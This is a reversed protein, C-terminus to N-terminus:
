QLSYNYYNQIKYCSETNHGKKLPPLCEQLFWWFTKSPLSSFCNSHLCLHFHKYRLASLDTQYIRILKKTDFLCKCMKELLNHPSWFFLLFPASTSLASSCCASAPLCSSSTSRWTPSPWNPQHRNAPIFMNHPCTQSLLPLTPRPLSLSFSFSTPTLFGWWTCVKFKDPGVTTTSNTLRMSTWFRSEPKFSCFTSDASRILQSQYFGTMM